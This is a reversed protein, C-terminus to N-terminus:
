SQHSSKPCGSVKLKQACRYYQTDVSSCATETYSYHVTSTKIWILSHLVCTVTWDEMKYLTLQGFTIKQKIKYRRV